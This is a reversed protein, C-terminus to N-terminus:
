ERRTHSSSSERVWVVCLRREPQRVRRSPTKRRRPPPATVAERGAHMGTSLVSRWVSSALSSGSRNVAASGAGAGVGGAGAGASVGGGDRRQGARSVTGGGGVTPGFGVGMSAANDTARVYNKIGAIIAPASIAQDGVPAMRDLTRAHAAAPVTFCLPVSRFLFFCRLVGVLPDSARSLAMILTVCLAECPVDDVACVYTCWVCVHVVRGRGWGRSASAESDSMVVVHGFMKIDAKVTDLRSTDAIEAAACVWM